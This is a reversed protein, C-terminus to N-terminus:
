CFPARIRSWLFTCAYSQFITHQIIPITFIGVVIILREPITNQHTNTAGSHSGSPHTLLLDWRRSFVGMARCESCTPRSANAPVRCSVVPVLFKKIVQIPPKGHPQPDSGLQL